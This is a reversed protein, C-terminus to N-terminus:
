IIISEVATQLMDEYANMVLNLGAYCLVCVLVIVILRKM